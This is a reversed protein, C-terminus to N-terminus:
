KHSFNDGKLTSNALTTVICCRLILFFLGTADFIFLVARRAALMCGM